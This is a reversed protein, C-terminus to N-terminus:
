GRYELVALPDNLQALLQQHTLLLQPHVFGPAIDCLPVLVFKRNAIEPHPVTLNNTAIIDNNFYLIDIDILRAGWKELRVRGLSKEIYLLINLCEDANKDTTVVCALNLFDPQQTNGWAATQYYKSVKLIQGLSIQIRSLAEDINAKRDGLNGGLILYITNLDIMIFGLTLCVESSILRPLNLLDLM